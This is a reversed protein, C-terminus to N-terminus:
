KCCIDMKLRRAFDPNIGGAVETYLSDSSMKSLNGNKKIAEQVKANNWYESLISYVGTREKKILFKPFTNADITQRQKM